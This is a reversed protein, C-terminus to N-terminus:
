LIIIEQLIAKAIFMKGRIDVYKDIGETVNRNCGWRGLVLGCENMGPDSGRIPREEVWRPQLHQWIIQLAMNVMDSVQDIVKM